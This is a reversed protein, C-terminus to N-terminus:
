KRCVFLDGAAATVGMRITEYKTLFDRASLKEVRFGAEVLRDVYDTGYRRVHDEQGYLRLREKPDEITPDEITKEATIPVLLIAIGRATLVRNFERMAQRDDPVHELVHSCHIFDFTDDPFEINCIDMKLDVGSVLLDATLYGKGFKKRFQNELSGEPAIHLAKAPLNTFLDTKRKLYLWVMRHRELSGCVPCRADSRPSLGYPGFKESTKGCVPCHREPGPKTLRKQFFRLIRRINNKM